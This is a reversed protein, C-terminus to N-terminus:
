SKRHSQKLWDIRIEGELPRFEPDGTVLVANKAHATAAAFADAYAFAFRGKLHAAQLVLFEDNQVIALPLNKVLGWTEFAKQEGESRFTIYFIEGANIMNLYLSVKEERAAQLYTEVRDAGPESKLFTLLAFSDLVAAAPLRM